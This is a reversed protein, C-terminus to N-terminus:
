AGGACEFTGLLTELQIMYQYKEKGPAYLWADLLYLRDQAPCPLARTIFPGAAPWADAPSQWVAQVEYVERGGEEEAGWWAIRATDVVQEDGYYETAIAQRWELLWDPGEAVQWPLTDPLPSRWTVAVQRILESPDPNDNRFVYVSDMSSRRYVDPFIMRFGVRRALTDALATDAGSVYMRNIALSRFQEDYLLRLDDLLDIFAGAQGEDPTLVVTVTQGRAWVDYAQVIAPATVGEERAKGLAQAIWRDSAPGVLLLQRFQQLQGWRSTDTPAVHTVTFTKEDRVTYLTPELARYVSDQVEDWVDQPVAAVISSADGYAGPRDCAAVVLLLLVAV